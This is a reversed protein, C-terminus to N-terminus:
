PWRHTRLTFGKSEVVAAARYPEGPRLPFVDYRLAADSIREAWALRATRADPALEIEYSRLSRSLGEGTAKLFAEKCTWLSFFGDPNALVRPQEGPTFWRRALDDTRRPRPLEIDAGVEAGRALVLLALGGSHSLNFRLPAGRPQQARQLEPKGHAAYGFAVDAPPIGLAAGLAERLFGRSAGWRHRHEEHAFSDFRVQERPSFTARLAALRAAPVDLECVRAILERENPM